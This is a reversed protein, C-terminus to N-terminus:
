RKIAALANEMGATAMPAWPVTFFKFGMDVYHNADFGPPIFYMGPAVGHRQAGAVVEKLADQYKKATYDLPVDLEISFDSPGVLLVDIGPVSCIEDINALSTNTEIMVVILMENSAADMYERYNAFERGWDGRQGANSREGEPYYKVARVVRETEERTNVMPVIIGRAGADMANLILEARNDSVRVVPSAKKGKMGAIAPGLEKPMVPSHQTDFLLFDFGGGALLAATDVDPGAGAGVAVQGAKLADKVTNVTHSGRGFSPEHHKVLM